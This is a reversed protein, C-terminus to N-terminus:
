NRRKLGETLVRAMALDEKMAHLLDEPSDFKKDTRIFQLFQVTLLEGYITENFDLIFCEIRLDTGNFTPRNGISLLGSYKQPRNKLSVQVFYVGHAPILKQKDEVFINATPFGLTRGIQDGKVVPGSLTYPYGLLENAEQVNGELLFKRIKSSSVTLHDIVHAPIEEVRIHQRAAIEKLLHIDGKRDKGFKHDYGFVIISPNFKRILFDEAYKEAEIESFERSFPVVVVYDIGCKELMVLKEQLTTLYYVPQEPSIIHRPHPHFTIIISVGGIQKAASTITHIIEIHGSHVGDFTGITIVSNEFAPLAHIDKIVQM